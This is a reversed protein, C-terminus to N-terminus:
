LSDNSGATGLTVERVANHISKVVASLRADNRNQRIAANRQAALFAASVDDKSGGYGTAICIKLLITAVHQKHGEQISLSASCKVAQYFGQGAVSRVMWFPCALWNRVNHM